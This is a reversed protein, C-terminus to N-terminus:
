GIRMAQQKKDLEIELAEHQRPTLIGHYRMYHEYCDACVDMSDEEEAFIGYTALYNREVQDDDQNPNQQYEEECIECTFFTM